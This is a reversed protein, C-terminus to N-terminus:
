NMTHGDIFDFCYFKVDWRYEGFMFNDTDDGNPANINNNYDNRRSIGFIHAVNSSLM